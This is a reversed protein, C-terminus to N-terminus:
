IIPFLNIVSLHKWIIMRKQKLIHKDEKEIATNLMLFYTEGVEYGASYPVSPILSFHFFFGLIADCSIRKILITDM